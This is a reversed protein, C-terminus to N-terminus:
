NKLLILIELLHIVFVEFRMVTNNRAGVAICILIASKQTIICRSTTFEKHVNRYLKNTGDEFTLFGNLILGMLQVTVYHNLHLAYLHMVPFLNISM